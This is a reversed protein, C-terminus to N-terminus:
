AVQGILLPVGPTLDALFKTAMGTAALGARQGPLHEERRDVAILGQEAQGRKHIRGLARDEAVVGNRHEVNGLPGGADGKFEAYGGSGGPVDEDEGRARVVSASAVAVLEDVEPRERRRGRALAVDSGLVNRLM